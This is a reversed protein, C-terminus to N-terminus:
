QGFSFVLHFSVGLSNGKQSAPQTLDSLGLHYRADAGLSVSESMPVLVGLGALAGFTVQNLGPNEFKLDTDTSRGEITNTNTGSLGYSVYPGLFVSVNQYFKYQGLVPVMITNVSTTNLVTQKRRDIIFAGNPLQTIVNQEAETRSVGGLQYFLVEPQIGFKETLPINVTLGGQFGYNMTRTEGKAKDGVLHSWATGGRLGLQWQAQAAFSVFFLFVAGFSVQLGKKM